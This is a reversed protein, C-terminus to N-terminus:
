FEEEFLALRQIIENEENPNNKGVIHKIDVLIDISKTLFVLKDQSIKIYRDLFHLTEEKCAISTKQRKIDMLMKVENLPISLRKLKLIFSLDKLEQETYKRYGNTNRDPTLLGISEYYRITEKKIGTLKSLESIKM